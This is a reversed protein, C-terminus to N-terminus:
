EICDDLKIVTMIKGYKILEDEISMALRTSHRRRPDKNVKLSAEVWEKDDINSEPTWCAKWIVLYLMREGYRRKDAVSHVHSYLRGRCEAQCRRAYPESRSHTEQHKQHLAELMEETNSNDFDGAFM